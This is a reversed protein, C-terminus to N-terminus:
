VTGEMTKVATIVTTTNTKMSEATFYYRDMKKGQNDLSRYFCYIKYYNLYSAPVAGIKVMRRFVDMNKGLYDAVRMEM